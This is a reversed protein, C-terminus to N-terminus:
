APTTVLWVMPGSPPTMPGTPTLAQETARVTGRPVNLEWTWIVM